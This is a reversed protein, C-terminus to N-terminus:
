RRERSRSRGRQQANSGAGADGNRGRGNKNPCESSIHGAGNCIYCRASQLHHKYSKSFSFFFYAVCLNLSTSEVVSHALTTFRLRVNFSRQVFM